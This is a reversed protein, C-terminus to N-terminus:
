IQIGVSDKNQNNTMTNTIPTLTVPTSIHTHTMTKTQKTVFLYIGDLELHQDLHNIVDFPM